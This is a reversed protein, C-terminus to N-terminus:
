ADLFSDKKKGLADVWLTYRHERFCNKGTDKRLDISVPKKYLFKGGTYIRLPIERLLTTRYLTLRKKFCENPGKRSCQASQRGNMLAQGDKKLYEKETTPNHFTVDRM